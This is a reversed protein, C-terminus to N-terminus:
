ANRKGELSKEIEIVVNSLDNYMENMASGSNEQPAFRVFECKEVCYKLKNILEEDIQKAELKNVATELTFDAKPIHLKDELYGFLAQSMESYFETTKNEEMLTKATKFRAKAIRQAKQYRMLQINGSLREDRKKWGILAFLAILPLAAAAWFGYSYIIMESKKHLDDTSTKIFRIDDGLVKVDEKSYSEPGSALSNEGQEINIPYAPTSLTEYRKKFPDFYSFKISPIEKKGAVRPIILYEVSKKGSIVNNRNINESTKPEYKEFGAPLNLEPVNILKINGTGSINIKLSIPENTKTDTKDLDSNMTFSGVAGNFSDPKGQQPLPESTIKITNSKAEYQVTEGRNFFPDDFFDDFVNNSKRKRQVIVPVNLELPTVSLEGTQSPFLAVKKLIGVRFQKGDVVETSFSINNSTQLEEAWFGQYQPLKSVSMQSAISLRTYLKYTVTVQEGQYVKHKDVSAKIFLNKAIDENSIGSGGKQQAQPKSSGKVVEINLPNTKLPKGKYSISASGITFKGLDKPQLYFSYAVSASVAGNIIQMSTSSNPGSLVRFNEFSPPNFGSVDNVSEGSFTFTVQFQDNIGVTSSSAESTFSQASVAAAFLIILAFLYKPNLLKM